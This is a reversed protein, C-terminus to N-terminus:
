VTDYNSNKKLYSAKNKVNEAKEIIEEYNNQLDAYVSFNAGLSFLLNLLVVFLISKKMIFKKFLYVIM